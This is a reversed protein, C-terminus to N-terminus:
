SECACGLIACNHEKFPAQSSDDHGEGCLPVISSYLLIIWDHLHFRAVKALGSGQSQSSPVGATSASEIDAM